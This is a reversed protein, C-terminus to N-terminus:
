TTPPARPRIPARALRSVARPIEYSVLERRTPSPARLTIPPTLVALPAHVVPRGVEPGRSAMGDIPARICWARDGLPTPDPDPDCPLACGRHAAAGACAADLDCAVGPEAECPLTQAEGCAVDCTASESAAAACASWSFPCWELSPLATWLALGLAVPALRKWRPKM